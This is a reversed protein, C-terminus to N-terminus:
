ASRRDLTRLHRRLFEDADARRIKYVGHPETIQIARLRRQACWTSVTRPHPSTGTGPGRWGMYRATETVSMLDGTHNTTM